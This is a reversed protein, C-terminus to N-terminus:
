LNTSEAASSITSGDWNDGTYVRSEGIIDRLNM